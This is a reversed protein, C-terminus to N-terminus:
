NTVRRALEDFRLSHDSALRQKVVAPLNPKWFKFNNGTRSLLLNCYGLNSIYKVNWSGIKSTYCSSRVFAPAYLTSDSLYSYCLFCELVLSHVYLHRKSDKGKVVTVPLLFRHLFVPAYPVIPHILIVCSINWYRPTFMHIGNRTKVRQLM